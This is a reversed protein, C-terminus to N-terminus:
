KARQRRRSTLILYIAVLVILLVGCGLLLPVTTDSVVPPNEADIVVSQLTGTPTPSGDAAQAEFTAAEETPEATPEETPATTAVIVVEETIQTESTAEASAQADLVAQAALTQAANRAEATQTRPVSATQTAGIAQATSRASRTEQASQTNQELARDTARADLTGQANAMAAARTETANLQAQVEASAEAAAATASAAANATANAVVDATSTQAALESLQTATLAASSTNIAAQTSTQNAQEAAQQAENTLVAAQTATAAFIEAQATASGAPDPSISFPIDVSASADANDAVIRLVHDGPTYDLVEISARFPITVDHALEEGDVFFAVHNLATQSAAEVTVDRDESLVDNAEIGSVSIIPPLAAVTFDVAASGTQGNELTATVTFTAEGPPLTMPDIVFLTGDPAASSLESDGVSASIEAVPSQGTVTILANTPADVTQGAELGLVSVSPPLAAVTFTFGTESSVGGQNLVQVFLTNLGPPLEAPNITFTYPDTLPNPNVNSDSGANLSYGVFEPATQGTVTVTVEVPETLDGLSALDPSIEVTSALAAIEVQVAYETEDGNEDVVRVTVALDGPPLEAPNLEVTIQGDTLAADQPDTEGVKTEAETIPDDALVDFTLTYPESIPETPLNNVRVIPQPIPARLTVTTSLVTDPAATVDLACAYENGDAPVDANLTILYQSRLRTALEDFIPVLQDVSPAIEFQGGTNEALASLYNIDVSGYGITYITTGLEAAADIASRRNAVESGRDEYGDSFLVVVHRTTPSAVSLEVGELAADYLATVGGAQLSDIAAILAAKDTTYDQVLVPDSSFAILAIQDQDRLNEVFTRAARQANAFPTGFMSSSTDLVLVVSLYINEATVNEVSVVQPPTPLNCSLTFAEPALGNVPQSRSDTVNVALVATPLQSVDVGTVELTPSPTQATLGSTAFIVLAMVAFFVLGATFRKM